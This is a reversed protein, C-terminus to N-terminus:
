PSSRGTAQAIAQNLRLLDFPKPMVVVTASAPLEAAADGDTESTALVFGIRACDPDGVLASALQVGSMDFLHMASFIAHVRHQKAADLADRGSATAHVVDIGLQELYRRIIAAQTRSPEVLVVSQKVGGVAATKPLNASVIMRSTDRSEAAAGAFSTAPRERCRKRRGNSRRSRFRCCTASRM